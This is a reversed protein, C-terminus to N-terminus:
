ENTTACSYNLVQWYCPKDGDYQVASATLQYDLPTLILDDDQSGADMAEINAIFQAKVTDRVTQTLLALQPRTEAVCEIGIQVRDESGEYLDDKTGQDNQMGDYTVILYPAPVNEADKDPLPIATDYIRDGVINAIAQSQQLTTIFIVDTQLSM